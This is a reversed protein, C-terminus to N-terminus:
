QVRLGKTYQNLQGQDAHIMNTGSTDVKGSFQVNSLNESAKIMGYGLMGAGVMTSGASLVALPVAVTPSGPAAAFGIPKSNADWCVTATTTSFMSPRTETVQCGNAQPLLAYHLTQVGACGTLLMIASLLRIAVM